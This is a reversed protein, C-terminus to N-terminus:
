GVPRAQHPPAAATASATLPDGANACSPEPETPSMFSSDSPLKSADASANLAEWNELDLRRVEEGRIHLMDTTNPLATELDARVAIARNNEADYYVEQARLTQTIQGTGTGRVPGSQTQVIAPVPGPAQGNVVGLALVVAVLKLVCRM